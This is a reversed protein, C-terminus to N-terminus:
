KRCVEIAGQTRHVKSEMWREKDEQPAHQHHAGKTIIELEKPLYDHIEKGIAGVLNIFVM